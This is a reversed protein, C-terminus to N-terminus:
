DKCFFDQLTVQHISLLTMLTNITLNSKGKEIRWYQILPLQHDEAFNKITDYGMQLRLESLKGGINELTKPLAKSKRKMIIFKFSRMSNVYKAESYHNLPTDDTYNLKHEKM